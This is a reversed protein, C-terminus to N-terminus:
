NRRAGESRERSKRRLRVVALTLAVLAAVVGFGPGDGASTGSGDDEDNPDDAAAVSVTVNATDTIGESGTVLLSVTHTGADAFSTHTRRGSAETSGDGDLDWAYREVSGDLSFSSSADLAVAEGPRATRPSAEAVAIIRADLAPVSAGPEVTRNTAVGTAADAVAYSGNRRVVRPDDGTRTVATRYALTVNGRAAGGTAPSSAAGDSRVRFRVDADRPVSIWELGDRDGSARAGPIETVYEGSATVGVRRGRDDIALLHLDQGDTRNGPAAIIRDPGTRVRDQMVVTHTNPRPTTSAVSVTAGDDSKGTLGFRLFTPSRIGTPYRLSEGVTTLTGIRERVEGFLGSNARYLWLVTKEYGPPRRYGPVFTSRGDIVPVEDGLALTELRPVEVAVGDSQLDAVSIRSADLWKVGPEWSGNNLGLRSLTGIKRDTLGAGMLTAISSGGEYLDDLGRDHGFEHLWVDNGHGGDGVLGTATVYVTRAGSGSNDCGWGYFDLETRLGKEPLQPCFFARGLPKGTHSAVWFDFREFAIESDVVARLDKAFRPHADDDEYTSRTGDVRYLDGDNTFLELTFGVAGMSGNGSGYYDNVSLERAFRWERRGERGPIESRPVPEDALEGVVVAADRVREFLYYDLDLDTTSAVAGPPAAGGYFRDLTASGADNEARVTLDVEAGADLGDLVAADDLDTTWRDGGANIMPVTATEDSGVPDVVVSASEANAIDVEVVPDTGVPVPYPRLRLSSADVSPAGTGLGDLPFRLNTNGFWYKGNSLRPTGDAYTSGDERALPEVRMEVGTPASTITDGPEYPQAPRLNSFRVTQTTAGTSLTVNDIWHEVGGVSFSTIDGSLVITGASGGDGHERVSVTAGGVTAGDLSPFAAFRRDGNVALNPDPGYNRYDFAIRSVGDGESEQVEVTVSATDTRGNGDRVRYQFGATGTFGAPPRYTFEDGTVEVTGHTPRQVLSYELSGGDPDTTDFTGSVAAGATTSVTVDEATPPANGLPMVPVVVEGAAASEIVFPSDRHYRQSVVTIEVRAGRPVDLLVRGNPETEELVSGGDWEAFVSIGDIPDESGAEIVAVEVSAQQAGGVATANTATVAGSATATGTALGFVAAAAVILAAVRLRRFSEESM